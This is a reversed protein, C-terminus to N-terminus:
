GFEEANPWDEPVLAPPKAWTPEVLANQFWPERLNAHETIILQFGPIDNNTYDFLIKFMKRVKNMDHDDLSKETDEKSGDIEAYNITKPFYVQSPQDIFLFRPIPRNNKYAFSHLALLTALHMALHNEGGGTRKLTIVEGNRLFSVELYKLNFYFPCDSFETDFAKMFKTIDLSIANLVANEKEESNDVGIQENLVSIRSQIQSYKQELKIRDDDSIQNELYISIKGLVKSAAYNRSKLHDISENVSIISSLESEKMRISDNIAQIESEKTKIFEVLKPKDGTVMELTKDLENLEKLLAEAIPSDMLLNEESFPWQWKGQADYPLLKISELRSKQEFMENTFGDSGNSFSKAEEMKTRLDQREERLDQISEQLESIKNDVTDPIEEPQWSLASNLYSAIESDSPIETSDFDIMGLAKAELLLNLGNETIANRYLKAEQIQKECIKLARKESRLLAELNYKEDSSIGLLIPLTDKITQPIQKDIEDQQYFLTNKNTIINQKQFLYYVSHQITAKFSTRSNYMPVSTRNEPIGLHTSLVKVVTDDETNISLDEFAPIAIDMGELLMVNSVYKAGHKPSPKAVLVQRENFQYIVGFWAVKESLVGAAIAYHTKGMCYEVISTLESKGTSSKGTIINLGDTNFNLERKRGDHSFIFITKIKM